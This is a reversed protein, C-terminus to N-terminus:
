RLKDEPTGCEADELIEKLKAELGQSGGSGQKAM